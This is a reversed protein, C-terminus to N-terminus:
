RRKGISGYVTEYPYNKMLMITGLIGDEEATYGIKFGLGSDSRLSLGAVFQQNFECLWYSETQKVGTLTNNM